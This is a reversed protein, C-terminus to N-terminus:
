PKADPVSAIVPEEVAVVGAPALVVLQLIRIEGVDGPEIEGMRADVAPQLVLKGPDMSGRRQEGEVLGALVVGAVDRSSRRMEVDGEQGAGAAVLRGAAVERPEDGGVARRLDDDRAAGLARQREISLLEQRLADDFDVDDVRQAGAVAEDGAEQHGPQRALRDPGRRGTPGFTGSPDAGIAAGEPM